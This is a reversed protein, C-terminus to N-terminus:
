RPRPRRAPAERRAAAAVPRPLPRSCTALIDTQRKNRSRGRNRPGATLVSLRPPELVTIDCAAGALRAEVLPRVDRWDLGGLGCGLPPIALSAIGHRPIAAALDRLGADIDGIASPNRWHRKTPFHVIWRPRGAGTDFLFMRGPRVQGRACAERWAAFADPYRQRFQLALGRGMVAVCNVPNVIAEVAQAFIDGTAFRIM